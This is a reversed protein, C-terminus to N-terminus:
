RSHIVLMWSQHMERWSQHPWRMGAHCQLAQWADGDGAVRGCAQPVQSEVSMMWSVSTRSVQNEEPRSGKVTKPQGLTSDRCRCAARESGVEGGEVGGREEDGAEVDEEEPDGAHDHEAAM